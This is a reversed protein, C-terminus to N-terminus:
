THFNGKPIPNKKLFFRKNGTKKDVYIGGDDRSMVINDSGANEIIYCLHTYKKKNNIAFLILAVLGGIILVFLFLIFTTKLTGALGSADQLSVM